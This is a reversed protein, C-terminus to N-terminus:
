SDGGRDDTDEPSPEDQEEHREALVRRMARLDDERDDDPSVPLYDGRM